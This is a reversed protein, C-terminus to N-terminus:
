LLDCRIAGKRIRNKVRLWNDKIVAFNGGELRELTLRAIRDCSNLQIRFDM